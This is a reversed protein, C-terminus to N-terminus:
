RALTEEIWADISMGLMPLTVSGNELIRNHFVRIDFKDGLMREAKQRLRQIELSGVLYSTAQGPVAAYRDVEGAVADFGEATNELMYDIANQRTWGMVHMGPDVVLRAARFAENSLMGLRALESSYLGIEDALRESYLAWGESTGSSWMYRLIPHLAQNGLAISSDLHHGPWSEHFATSETGAKSIGTPNYTGVKYIGISGDASGASYFGGGSDKEFAPSPTIILRSEPVYAFWDPMAAKARGVASDIYDLMAQESEFTYEPKTRLEQLLSKLDDTGFSERAIALMESQIRSMNSLGARHIDGPDMPLSSWYRVSAAYCAEGDPNASVGIVDRGSYKIALFDRYRILAPIVSKEVTERYQKAFKSDKSRIAPDLFPSEDVPTDILATVQEVVADVNTQPALYGAGVGRRLNSIETDLYRAIDSSRALAAEREVATSVPQVGLTSTIMSPWGTWTPSVNWLEMRCVRMGIIAELRERAFLYTVADVTGSLPTPDLADVEELWNDVQKDWAVLHSESHNGFRDMPADPYASEYAEEPYQSYYGDVFDSAISNVREASTAEPEDSCACLAAIFVLIILRN